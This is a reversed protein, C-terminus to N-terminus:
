SIAEAKKKDTELLLDWLELLKKARAKVRSNNEFAGGMFRGPDLLPGIADDTDIHEITDVLAERPIMAMFGYVQKITEGVLHPDYKKKVEM